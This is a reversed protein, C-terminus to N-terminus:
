LTQGYKKQRRKDSINSSIFCTILVFLLFGNIALVVIGDVFYDPMVYVRCDLTANCRRGDHEDRCGATLNYACVYVGSDTLNAETLMLRGSDQDYYIRSRNDVSVLQNRPDIWAVTGDDGKRSACTVKGTTGQEIFLRTKDLTVWDNTSKTTVLHWSCCAQLLIIFM